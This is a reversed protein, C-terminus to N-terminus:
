ALTAAGLDKPSPEFCGRGPQCAGPETRADDPGWPQCTHLCTFPADGAAMARQMDDECRWQSGYFGKWRLHHCLRM